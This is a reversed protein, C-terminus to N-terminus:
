GPLWQGHAKAVNGRERSKACRDAAIRMGRRGTGPLHAEPTLIAM